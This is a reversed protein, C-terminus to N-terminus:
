ARRRLFPRVLAVLDDGPAAGLEHRLRQAYARYRRAAEFRNGETVLAQVLVTVASERLPEACVAALGAGTALTYAGAASATRCVAELAQIRHLHFQDQEDLVWSEYWGPLLDHKLMEVEEAGVEADALAQDAVRRAEGLDVSAALELDPGDARVWRRPLQWLARRVNARARAETLEPWLDTGTLLRNVRPGKVAAYALLRRGAGSLREPPRTGLGGLVGVRRSGNSSTM